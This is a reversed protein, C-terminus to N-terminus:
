SDSPKLTIFPRTGLVDDPIVFRFARGRGATNLIQEERLLKRAVLPTTSEVVADRSLRSINMINNITTEINTMQMQYIVNIMGIQKMRSTATEGELPNELIQKMTFATFALSVHPSDGSSTM